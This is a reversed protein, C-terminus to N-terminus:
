FSCYDMNEKPKESVPNCVTVEWSLVRGHSGLARQIFDMQEGHGVSSGPIDWVEDGASVRDTVSQEPFAPRM